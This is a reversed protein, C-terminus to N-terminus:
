IQSRFGYDILCIDLFHLQVEKIFVPASHSFAVHNIRARWRDIARGCPSRPPFRQPGRVSPLPNATVEPVAVGCLFRVQRNKWSEQAALCLESAAGRLEGVYFGAVWGLRAGM